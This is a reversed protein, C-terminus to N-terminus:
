YNKTSKLLPQKITQKERDAMITESSHSGHSKIPFDPYQPKKQSEKQQTYYASFVKFVDNNM